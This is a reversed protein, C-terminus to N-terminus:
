PIFTYNSRKVSVSLSNCQNLGSVILGDHSTFDGSIHDRGKFFSNKKGVTVM